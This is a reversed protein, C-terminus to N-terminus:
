LDENRIDRFVSPHIAVLEQGFIQGSQDENEFNILWHKCPKKIRRLVKAELCVHSYVVEKGKTTMNDLMKSFMWYVIWISYIIREKGYIYLLVICLISQIFLCHQFLSLLLKFEKIHSAKALTVWKTYQKTTMYMYILEHLSPIINWTQICM